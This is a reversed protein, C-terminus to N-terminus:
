DLTHHARRTSGMFCINSISAFAGHSDANAASPLTYALISNNSLSVVRDDAFDSRINARSIYLVPWHASSADLATWRSDKVMRSLSM